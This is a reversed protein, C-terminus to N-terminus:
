DLAEQLQKLDNLIDDIQRLQKKTKRHWTWLGIGLIYATTIGLATLTFLVSGKSTVEVIYFSMAIWLLVSYIWVYRTLVKRQWELKRIQYNVFDASSIELNEKKFGYSRWAVILFVIILCYVTAISAGFPWSYQHRFAFYVWGIFILAALLGISMRLNAFLLKRQYKQWKNQVFQIEAPRVQDSVPQALWNQQIDEFSNM